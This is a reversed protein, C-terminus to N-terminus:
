NKEKESLFKIYFNDFDKQKILKVVSLPSKTVKYLTSFLDNFKDSINKSISLVMVLQVKNDKDWVIPKNLIGVCVCSHVEVVELAHPIAVLNGIATSSLKERALISQKISKDIYGKAMMNDTLFDLVKEKNEFKIDTFFLDRVFLNEFDIKGKKCYDINKIKGKIEDLDSDELVTSVLIKPISIDEKIPVTTLIIDPKLNVVLDLQHLPFTGILEVNDGLSNKLKALLLSSSGM